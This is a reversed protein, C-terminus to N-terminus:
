AFLGQRLFSFSFFPDSTKFIHAYTCVFINQSYEPFQNFLNSEPHVLFVLFVGNTNLVM